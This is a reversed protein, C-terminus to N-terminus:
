GASITLVGSNSYLAGAKSPDATPIGTVVIDGDADITFTTDGWKVSGGVAVVQRDGGSDKYTKTTYSM